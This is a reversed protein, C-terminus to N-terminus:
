QMINDTAQKNQKHLSYFDEQLEKIIEVDEDDEENLMATVLYNIKSKDEGLADLWWNDIVFRLRTKLTVKDAVEQNEAFTNGMIAILMNLMHVILVFSAAIFFVWLISL